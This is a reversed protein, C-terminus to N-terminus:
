RKIKKFFLIVKIWKLYIKRFKLINNPVTGYKDPVYAMYKINFFFIQLRNFGDEKFYINADSLTEWWRSIFLDLNRITYRHRDLSISEHHTVVSKPEYIIKYGAKGIKLCLDMDEYGNKYYEDFGGVLDFVKKPIAICAASVAQFTRKKNVYKKNAPSLRYIHEPVKSDFIAVGAHQITGNPFLLKAGVAGIMKEKKLVNIIPILWNDHVETDNNLFLLVENKAIHAGQNCAGSFNNNQKNLIYTIDKQDKLFSQTGDTSANDVVIMEYLDKKTKERIAKLCKKTYSLNNYTPIIISVKKM